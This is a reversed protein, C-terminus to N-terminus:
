VSCQDSTITYVYPISETGEHMVTCAPIGEPYFIVKLRIEYM